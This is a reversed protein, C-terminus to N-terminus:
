LSGPPQRRPHQGGTGHLACGCDAVRDRCGRDLWRQGASTFYPQLTQFLLRLPCARCYWTATFKAQLTLRLGSVAAVNPGPVKAFHRADSRYRLPKHLPRHMLTCVLPARKATVACECRSRFRMPLSRLETYGVPPKPTIGRVKLLSKEFRKRHTSKLAEVM